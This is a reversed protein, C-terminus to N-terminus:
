KYMDFTQHEAHAEITMMKLQMDQTMYYKQPGIPEVESRLSMRQYIPSPIPHAKLTM